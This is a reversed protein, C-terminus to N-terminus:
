ELFWGMRVVVVLFVFAEVVFIFRRLTASYNDGQV